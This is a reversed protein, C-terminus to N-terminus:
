AALRQQLARAGAHAPDLALAEASFVAADERMGEIAAVRALGFLAHPDPREQCIALWEEAASQHFGREFYIEALLEHRDRAALPLADVLAVVTEFREFERVRLLAQLVTSLMPLSHLSLAPAGEGGALALWGAFVALEHDPMGHGQVYACAARADDLQEDALLAFLRTRAAAVVLASDSPVAGTVAAAEPWRRLALLVEGLAVRARDNHPQRELVARFQPEAAEAAGGEFLATGLMFHVTPSEAAVRGTIAEAVAHPDRGSALMVRALPHVAGFFGPAMELAQEFREIACELEGREAHMEGLAIVPLHTGSGVVATYRAPADGLEICREYLARAEEDRGLDRLAHAQELFLDTFGPYHELAEIARAITDEARSAARLTRVLRYALSPAFIYTGARGENVCMEWAREFEAVAGPVDDIAALECGLNFRLFPRDESERMQARLLEINRASKQKSVRVAGLYGFHEVRVDTSELREPLSPLRHAIQEHLRGEFRYEPRNRFVRLASHNVATGDGEEGTYNTEVLYFAERWTRGTLARLRDRDAAVLIEDADLYMIWDGTAADFSVNRPEAFSGTWEREIVRAGFSRAVEITRDRSGTDVVIIEDVAPAVAELCRPLMEEEDRVIMCLSLTLGTAPQAQSAIARARSTLLPSAGALALARALRDRGARRRQKVQALNGDIEALQPDLRRAARFLSEAADLSWVEYLAVGTYNLLAPECPTEELLKLGQEAITRLLGAVQGGPRDGTSQLGLELLSRRTRYREHVDTVRAADAFREAFAALEGSTVHAAARSLIEEPDADRQADLATGMLRLAM